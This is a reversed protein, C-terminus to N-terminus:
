CVQISLLKQSYDSINTVLKFALYLNSLVLLSTQRLKIKCDLSSFQLSRHASEIRRDNRPDEVTFQLRCACETRYSLSSSTGTVNMLDSCKYGPATFDIVFSCNWGSGCINSAAEPRPIPKREYTAHQSIMNLVSNPGIYYDFCTANPHSFTVCTTNWWSLPLKIETEIKSTERWDNTEEASFDLTM